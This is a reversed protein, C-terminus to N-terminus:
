TREEAGSTRMAPLGDFLPGLRTEGHIQYGGDAASLWLVNKRGLLKRLVQRQKPVDEGGPPERFQDLRECLQKYLALDSLEAVKPVRLGALLREKAAIRQELCAIRELVSDPAKGEGILDLYHGLESRLIDINRKAESLAKPNERQKKAARAATAKLLRM